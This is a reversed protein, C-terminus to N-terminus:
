LQRVYPSQSVFVPIASGPVDFLIHVHREGCNPCRLRSALRALPFARGRTCVLTEMDLAGQYNCAEIRTPGRHDGRGCKMRVSWKAAYADGLTEIVAM